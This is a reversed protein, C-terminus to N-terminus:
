SGEEKGYSEKKAGDMSEMQYNEVEQRIRM